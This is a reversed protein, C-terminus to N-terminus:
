HEKLEQKLMELVKKASLKNGRISINSYLIEQITDVIDDGQVKLDQLLKRAETQQTHTWHFTEWLKEFARQEDPLLESQEDEPFTELYELINPINKSIMKGISQPDLKKQNAQDSVIKVMQIKHAPLFHSAAVFFGSAEMDVLEDFSQDADPADLTHITRRPIKTKQLIDPYFTRSSGEDIIQDILFIDGINEGTGGCIGINACVRVQKGMQSRLSLDRGTWVNSKQLSLLFATGASSAIKGSGTIVLACQDNAFIQFTSQTRQPKLGLHQIFPKAELYLATVLLIKM